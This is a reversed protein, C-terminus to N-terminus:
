GDSGNGGHPMAQLGAMMAIQVLEPLNHAGLREMIRARHAEVTRPSLDLDRAITKNTGGAILAELVERERSSLAAIRTKALEAAQDREAIERISALASAIAELLQESHHNSDLFDVAGSKMAQVGIAVDGHADGIVIVPLGVRRARLEKPIALGAVEPTRIDLVVCGPVLVPAVELFAQASSFVKVQYGAGQLLVSLNRRATQDGDVVYVMSGDHQTIDQAIGAVRVVTGGEDCIPFGTNQIWRVTGDGRMIRYERVVVERQQQVRRLAAIVAERDDPHITKTWDAFDRPGSNPTEGWVQQFSPSLFELQMTKVDLTWLVSASHEAFQRFRGESEKLAAEARARGVSEWTRETVEQALAAEGDQWQRPTAQHVYLSAVLMGDKILPVVITARKGAAIYAAAIDEKATRPDLSADDIRIIHGAKLEAIIQPGFDALRYRGEFKPTAEDSWDCQVSLLEGTEDIEAYGVRGANLHRGLMEAAAVMIDHPDSLLRLRNGLAVLFHLRRETLIRETTEQVIALVGRIEGTEDRVPSCSFTWWTQEPYGKREMALPVDEFYSAEGQLAQMVIPSITDWIEPWVQRLPHGLAEPKAGLLPRFADNHFSILEPGWVLYAPIRAPLVLSLALRLAQPWDQTPGLPSASWDYAAIRAVMKGDGAPLTTATM